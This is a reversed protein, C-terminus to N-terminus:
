KFSSRGKTSREMLGFSLYSQTPPATFNGSSTIKLWPRSATPLKTWASYHCTNVLKQGSWLDHPSWFCHWSDPSPWAHSALELCVPSHKFNAISATQNTISPIIDSISFRTSIVMFETLFCQCREWIANCLCQRLQLGLACVSGYNCWTECYFLVAPM